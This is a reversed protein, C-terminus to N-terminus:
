RPPMIVKLRNQQLEIDLRRCDEFMDGDANYEFAPANEAAEIIVHRARKFHVFDLQGHEGKIFKPLLRMTTLRAVPDILCIDLWGDTPDAHPLVKMNGGYHSGCGVAALYYEGQLTEEDLTLKMPMSRYQMVTQYVSVAYSMSGLRKYRKVNKVVQADFGVSIINLFSENGIRISDVPRAVGSQVLRLAEELRDPIGYGRAADNGTGAPLIGLPTGSDLLGMAAEAVTGDGGMALVAEYKGSQAARQALLTAHGSYETQVLEMDALQNEIQALLKAARGHGATPNVILYKM